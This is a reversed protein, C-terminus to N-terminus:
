WASPWPKTFEFPEVKAIRAFDRENLTVLVFGHERASAAILCDNLYSRTLGDASLQRRRLQTAVISAAREYADHSPTIVRRRRKLPDLFARRTRAEMAPSTAGALLELAVVSHLFLDPTFGTVFTELQRNWREDRVARIYINTDLVYPRM